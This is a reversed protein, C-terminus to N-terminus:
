FKTPICIHKNQWNAKANNEGAEGGVPIDIWNTNSKISIVSKCWSTKRDLLSPYIELTKKKISSKQSCTIICSSFTPFGSQPSQPFTSFYNLFGFPCLERTRVDNRRPATYWPPAPPREGASSHVLHFIGNLSKNLETSQISHQALYQLFYFSSECYNDKLIDKIQSLFDLIFLYCYTNM